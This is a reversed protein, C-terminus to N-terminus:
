GLAGLEITLFTGAVAIVGEVFEVVVADRKEDCKALANNALKFQAGHVLTDQAFVFVRYPAGLTVSVACREVAPEYHADMRRWTLLDSVVKWEVSPNLGVESVSKPTACFPIAVGGVVYESAEFRELDDGWGDESVRGSGM